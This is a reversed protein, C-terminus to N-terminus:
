VRMPMLLRLMAPDEDTIVIATGANTVNLTVEGAAEDVLSRLYSKNLGFDNVPSDPWDVDLRASADGEDAGRASLIVKGAVSRAFKVAVGFRTDFIAVRRLATLLQERDFRLNLAFGEPKPIVRGFDPFTGEILKARMVFTPTVLEIQQKAKTEGDIQRTVAHVAVNRGALHRRIISVVKTPIIRSQALADFAEGQYRCVSLRHGDTAALRRAGAADFQWAVGNLYYRTEETSICNAVSSLLAALKGDPFSEILEGREGPLDPFADAKMASLTYTADGDGVSVALDVIENHAVPSLRVPLAGAARAINALARPWVCLAWDGGADIVDLPVTALIDLDTSSFNLTAGAVALRVMGLIPYTNRAEIVSSMIKLAASLARGEITVFGSPARAAPAKKAEKAREKPRAERDVALAVSM